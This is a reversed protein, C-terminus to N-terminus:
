KFQVTTNALKSEVVRSSGILNSRGLIKQALDERKLGEWSCTLLAQLGAKNRGSGWGVAAGSTSKWLGGM